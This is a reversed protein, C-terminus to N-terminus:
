FEWPSVTFIFIRLCYWAKFALFPSCKRNWDLFVFIFLYIVSNCFSLLLRQLVKVWIAVNMSLRLSGTKTQKDRSNWAFTLNSAQGWHTVWVVTGTKENIETAPFSVESCMWILMPYCWELWHFTQLDWRHFYPSRQYEPSWVLFYCDKWWM